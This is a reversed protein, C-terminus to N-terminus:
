QVLVLGISQPHDGEMYKMVIHNKGNQLRIYDTTYEADKRVFLTAPKGTTKNEISIMKTNPKTNCLTGELRVLIASVPIEQADADCPLKLIQTNKLTKTPISAPEREGLVDKKILEIPTTERLSLYVFFGL